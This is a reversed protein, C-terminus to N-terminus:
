AVADADFEPSDPLACGSRLLLSHGALEELAKPSARVLPRLDFSLGGVATLGDRAEIWGDEGIASRYEAAACTARAVAGAQAPALELPDLKLGTLPDVAYPGLLRDVDREARELLAELEADDAPLLVGSPAAYARLLEASAYTPM